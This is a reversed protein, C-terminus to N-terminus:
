RDDGEASVRHFVVLPPHERCTTVTVDRLRDVRSQKGALHLLKESLGERVTRLPPLGIDASRSACIRTTSSLTCFMARTWACNSRAPYRTEDAALPWSAIRKANSVWGSTIRSSMM